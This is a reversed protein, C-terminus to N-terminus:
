FEIKWDEGINVKPAKVVAWAGKNGQEAHYELKAEGSGVKVSSKSAWEKPAGVIVIKEVGVEKMTKLYKDTLKGKTGIDTSALVGNTFDFTRHIYAGQQYDFTEGDDVYLEGKAAGSQGLVIVLISGV